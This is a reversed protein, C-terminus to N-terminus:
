WDGAVLLGRALDVEVAAAIREPVGLGAADLRRLPLPVHVVTDPEAQAARELELNDPGARRHNRDLAPLATKSV